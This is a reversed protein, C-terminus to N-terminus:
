ASVWVLIFESAFFIRSGPTHQLIESFNKPVKSTLRALFVVLEFSLFVVVNLTSQMESKTVLRQLNWILIMLYHKQKIDHWFSFPRNDLKTNSERALPEVSIKRATPIVYSFKCAFIFLVQLIRTKWERIAAVDGWNKTVLFLKNSLWQFCGTILLRKKREKTLRLKSQDQYGM